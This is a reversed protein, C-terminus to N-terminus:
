NSQELGKKYNKANRREVVWNHIMRQAARNLINISEFFFVYIDYIIVKLAVTMLLDYISCVRVSRADGKDLM